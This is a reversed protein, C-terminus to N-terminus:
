TKLGSFRCGRESAGTELGTWEQDIAVVIEADM